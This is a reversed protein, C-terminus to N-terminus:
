DILPIVNWNLNLPIFTPDIAIVDGFDTLNRMEDMTFTAVATRIPIGDRMEEKVYCIGDISKMYEELEVSESNHYQASGHGYVLNRVQQTSLSIGKNRRLWIAIQGPPVGNDSIARMIFKIDENLFRHAFLIPDIAHSHILYRGTVHARASPASRDILSICVYFTCKKPTGDDESDRHSCVLKNWDRNKKQKCRLAFGLRNAENQLYLCLVEPSPRTLVDLQDEAFCFPELPESSGEEDM